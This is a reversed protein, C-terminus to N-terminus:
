MGTEVAERIKDTDFGTDSAASGTFVQVVKGPFKGPMSNATRPKMLDAINSGIEEAAKPKHDATTDQAALGGSLAVGAAGVATLKFFERRRIHAERPSHNVGSGEKPIRKDM